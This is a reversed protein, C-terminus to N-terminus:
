KQLMKTIFGHFNFKRSKGSFKGKKFEFIAWWTILLALFTLPLLMLSTAAVWVQQSPFDLTIWCLLVHMQRNSFDVFDKFKMSCTHVFTLCRTWYAKQKMCVNQTSTVHNYWLIYTHKSTKFPVPVWFFGLAEWFRKLFWKFFLKIVRLFANQM